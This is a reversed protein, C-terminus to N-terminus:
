ALTQTIPVKVISIQVGEGASSFRLQATALELGQAETETTNVSPGTDIYFADAPTAGFLAGKDFLMKAPTILDKKFDALSHGLGDLQDAFHEEGVLAAQAAYWMVCRVNPALSWDRDNTQDALTRFGYTVIRGAYRRRSVTVGANNLALRQADSFAPQSLDQVWQAVGFRGAAAQNPNGLADVKQYAAAQRATPPVTRTTFATLGPVVDWPTFMQCWRRGNSPASYLAQAATEITVDNSTDPADLLAFRRNAVAHAITILNITSTTAGIDTIQGPGLHKPIRDHAAQHDATAIATGDTGGALPTAAVAAPPNTSVGLAIQLYKSYFAPNVGSAWGVADAQTVLTPSTEVLVGNFFVQLQYGGTVTVVAVSLGGTAGNAWTGPDPDGKCGAKVVLSTAASSDLLNVTAQTATASAIRSLWLKKGGENFFTEVWDSTLENTPTRAGGATFLNDHDQKSQLLIPNAISGRMTVGCAFQQQTDTSAVPATPAAAGAIQVTIDPLM